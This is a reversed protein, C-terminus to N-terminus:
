NRAWVQVVRPISMFTSDDRAVEYLQALINNIEQVDALGADVISAAINELTLPSLQKVEGTIGCPQVIRVQIDTFGAERLLGPLEAGIDPNAGRQRATARFLRVYTEHAPHPPHCFHARFDTDEAALLAGPKLFKRMQRLAEVPHQLHSLVFRAYVFDFDAPGGERSFDHLRFEVNDLGEQRAETQALELKEADVDMGVVHSNEGLLRALDCSVDGGGCGADLCTWHPQLGIRDFLELTTPRMVRSLLRLRERGPAGGRIIYSDAAM